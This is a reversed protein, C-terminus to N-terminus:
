CVYIVGIACSNVGLGSWFASYFFFVGLHLHSSYQPTFLFFRM